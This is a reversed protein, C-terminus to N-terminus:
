AHRRLAEFRALARKRAEAHVVIPRPYSEGLTVGAEELVGPAANWPEHIAPAALARLQPIWTRLYAGDPDFRRSQAVPNFIRFYPAADVGCGSVWQWNLANNARDADVLTDWFWAEGRQWSILLDKVLFSGVIMRVRNHMWGTQWLQRMGADVIPYGTRGHRWAELARADDRWQFATFEPRLPRTPLEPFHHLTYRAFERWGLQRLFGSGTLETPGGAPGRLFAHWVQRVSIEGFHLHPSLRSTGELAPLDRAGRYNVSQERLFARLRVTAGREGPTWFSAFKADWGSRPLLGWDEIRESALSGGYGPLARPARVPEAPTLSHLRNWFPTFIRFPGGAGTVLADPEALMDGGCREFAVGVSRLASEVVADAADVLPDYTRNCVIRAAGTSASLAVLVDVARGRRLLLRPARRHAARLADLSAALASLSHHLWWRAAGGLARGASPPDELIYLPIVPRGSEAAAVLAPNDSLRLDSRLWVVVPRAAPDSSVRSEHM